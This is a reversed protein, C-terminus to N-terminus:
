GLRAQWDLWAAILDAAALRAARLEEASHEAPNRLLAILNHPHNPTLTADYRLVLPDPSNM